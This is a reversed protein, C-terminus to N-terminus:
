ASIIPTPPCFKLIWWPLSLPRATLAPPVNLNRIWSTSVRPISRFRLISGSTQDLLYVGSSSSQIRTLVVGEAFFDTLAPRFDLRGALDLQDLNTQAKTFLEQSAQTVEYDQARTLLDVAQAWYTRQQVVDKSEAAQGIAKQADALLAQHEENKGSQSYVTISALIVVLPIALALIVMMLPPTANPLQPQASGFRRTFRDFFGNVKEYAAKLKMWTKALGITFGGPAAALPKKGVAQYPSAPFLFGGGPRRDRSDARSRFSRRNPLGRATMRSRSTKMRTVINLLFGTM